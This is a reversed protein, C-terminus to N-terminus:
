LCSYLNTNVHHQIIFFNCIVHGFLATVHLETQFCLYVLAVTGKNFLYSGQCLPNIKKRFPGEGRCADKFFFFIMPQFEWQPEAPSFRLMTAMLIHGYHGRAWDRAKSLPNLIRQQWSSCCLDCTHSLDQMATATTYDQLQLEQRVGLRPIAM